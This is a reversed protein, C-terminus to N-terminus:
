GMSSAKKAADQAAAVYETLTAILKVCDEYAAEDARLMGKQIKLVAANRAMHVRLLDVMVEIEQEMKTQKSMRSLQAEEEDENCPFRPNQDGPLVWATLVRTTVEEQGAPAEERLLLPPYQFYLGRAAMLNRAEKGAAELRLIETMADNIAARLEAHQGAYRLVRVGDEDRESPEPPLENGSTVDGINAIVVVRAREERLQKIEKGLEKNEKRTRDACNLAHRIGDEFLKTIKQHDICPM